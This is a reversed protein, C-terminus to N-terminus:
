QNDEKTFIAIADANSLRRGGGVEAWSTIEGWENAPLILTELGVRPAIVTSAVYYRGNYNFLTRTARPPAKLSRVIKVAM